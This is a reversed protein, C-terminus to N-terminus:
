VQRIFDDLNEGKQLAFKKRLRYRATNISDPTVSLMEAIQKARMGIRIYACLRLDNETLDASREKLKLFFDPHVSDFHLKFRSWEDDNHLSDGIVKNVQYVYERPIKGDDSFKKTIDNLQQLVENKNALLLTSSSIECNKQKIDNEFNKLNMNYILTEQELSKQLERNEAHHMRVRQRYYFYIAVALILIVLAVLIAVYLYNRNLQADKELLKIQDEQRAIAERAQAKPIDNKRMEAEHREHEEKYLCLYKYAQQQQGLKDYVKWLYEYIDSMMREGKLVPTFPELTQLVQLAEEYKQQQYLVRVHNTALLTYFLPNDPAKQRLLEYGQNCYVQASDPKQQKLFISSINAIAQLTMGWDKGGTAISKKYLSISKEDDQGTADNSSNVMAQFFYIRNLPYRAQQYSKRSLEIQEAAAHPDNIDLFLQGMLLYANGLFYHDGYKQFVPIAEGLLQYCKLFDDMREYNGALQYSICARDYDYREDTILKRAEELQEICKLPQATMQTMRIRWYAARAKLQKNGTEAAIRDLRDLLAPDVSQRENDYDIRVLEKAISDFTANIPLFHYSAGKAHLSVIILLLLALLNAHIHRPIPRVIM